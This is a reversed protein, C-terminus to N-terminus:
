REESPRQGRVATPRVRRAAWVALRERFIKANHRIDVPFAAHFLIIKIARTLDHRAGLEMLEAKIKKRQIRTKTKRLEICIVPVQRDPPGVGVLASRCVLPHTNFISECPITYLTEDSTVVRHSKRGCFWIRGRKDLWGLDGMRHWFGHDDPIKSLSDAKPNEFYGASVLDSKVVIEGIEGQPVV